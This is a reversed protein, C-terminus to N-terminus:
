GDQFSHIKAKKPCVHFGHFGNVYTSTCGLFGFRAIAVLWKKTVGAVYPKNGPPIGPDVGFYGQWSKPIYGMM